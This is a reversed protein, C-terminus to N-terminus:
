PLQIEQGDGSHLAGDGSRVTRNVRFHQPRTFDRVYGDSDTAQIRVFYEGAPLAELAWKRDATRREAALGAFGTDRAVQVLYNQGAEGDWSLVVEDGQQSMGLKGGVPLRVMFRRPDGYPGADPKGDKGRVVSGVRWYYNGSALGGVARSTESSVSEDVFPNAFAEDRAVQLRYGVVGDAGTWRLVAEAQEVVGGDPPAITVPPEPRAKLKISRTIPRGEIGQPDVGNIRVVYDGDELGAFRVRPTATVLNGAVQEATGAPWIFARYSAAGQLAPFALDIIPRQQLSQVGTLDPAALLPALTAAQANAAVAGGTGAGVRAAAGSRLVRLEVEGELVDSTAASGDRMSVGFETGRVGAAMLPTDIQFRSGSPRQPPVRSEVRGKDLALSTDARKKTLSYKLRELRLESDGAVRVVSGDAM